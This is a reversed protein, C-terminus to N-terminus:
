FRPLLQDLLFEVIGLPALGFRDLCPTFTFFFIGFTAVLSAAFRLDEAPRVLGFVLVPRPNAEM